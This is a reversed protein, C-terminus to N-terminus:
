LDDADQVPPGGDIDMGTYSGQIDSPIEGKGELPLTHACSESQQMVPSQYVDPSKKPTPMKKPPQKHDTDM